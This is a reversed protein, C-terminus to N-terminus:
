NKDSLKFLIEYGSDVKNLVINTAVAQKNDGFNLLYPDFISSSNYANILALSGTEIQDNTLIVSGVRLETRDASIEKIFLEANPYKSIKNKFVNYQVKFEGSSYGLDQLDQVPDIEIIPYSSSTTSLNSVSGVEAGTATTNNTNTTPIVGPNLPVNAPLKYKRYNYNKEILQDSLDYVHYEIYDDFTSFSKNVKLSTILRLDDTTYRSVQSTGLISGVIKINDAM